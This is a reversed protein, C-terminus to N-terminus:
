ARSRGSARPTRSTRTSCWPWTRDCWTVSARSASGACCPCCCCPCCKVTRSPASSPGSPSPCAPRPSRWRCAAPRSRGRGRWAASGTASLRGCMEECKPDKREEQLSALPSPELLLVLVVVLLRLGPLRRGHAPVVMNGAPLTRGRKHKAEAVANYLASATVPKHLVVDALAAAPHRALEERAHATVMIIIAANQGAATTQRILQSTELGNLGPMHWDLLLVDFARASEIGLRTLAAQGSNVTEASWGLSQVTESLHKRLMESADAILLHQLAMAPEAYGELKGSAFPLEFWFESGQGPISNLGMEGGMLQVLNRSICGGALVMGFGFMVGGVLCGLWPLTPARYLSRDLAVWGMLELAQSGALAVALALAWVRARRFSGFLVVDSVCGMTCFHSLQATAGFVLGILLGGLPVLTAAMGADM